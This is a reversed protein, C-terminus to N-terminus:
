IKSLYSVLVQNLPNLSYTVQKKTAGIINYSVLVQNLPNLCM